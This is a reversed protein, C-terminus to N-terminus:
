GKLMHEYAGSMVDGVSAGTHLAQAMAAERGAIQEAADLVRAIDEARIFAVGSRDAIVYDGPDVEVDGVRIPVDTGKEVIRGRATRATLGRSFIPFELAIAEDVDRVPGEAIVGAVARMKAALSLLGGWSGCDIGSRQEVVIVEDPGSKEIATCGLHRPPGPPPEGVGLKVTVVRGAIRAAGSRQALGSVLGSLKLKDLADSVACCDLRRLRRIQIKSDVEAPERM